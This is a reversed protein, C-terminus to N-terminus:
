EYRIAESPLLKAARASPYLSALFSIIIAGVGVLVFDFVRMYVPLTDTGYVSSVGEPLHIFHYRSLLFCLILGIAIGVVTGIVGILVGELMFIRRIMGSTAGIARLVGIERTKQTILMILTAAIGFCAVIIILLLLIFFTAKELRLASFLNTNLEIWHHAYYPYGVEGNIQQAVEPAKYVDALRIELGTVGDGLGVFDQLSKMPFYALSSNYEYLGADFIGTVEFERTKIGMPSASEVGFLTLTDYLFVSLKNALMKGLVIGKLEGELNKIERADSIGRLMVGDQTTRSRLIGKSYVFPTVSRVGNIEYIKQMLSEYDSIPKHHFKMVMVEPTTALIQEKFNKHLGNEVSLVVVLAGVGIAVGGISLGSIVKKFAGGSSTIHRRAIFLEVRM